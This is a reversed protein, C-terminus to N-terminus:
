TPSTDTVGVPRGSPNSATPFGFGKYDSKPKKEDENSGRPILTLKIRHVTEDSSGVGKKASAGIGVGFVRFSFGGGVEIDSTKQVTFQLEVEAEGFYLGFAGGKAAEAEAKKLDGALAGIVEDLGFTAATDPEGDPAEVEPM